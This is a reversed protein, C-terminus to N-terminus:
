SCSPRSMDDDHPARAWTRDGRESSGANRRPQSCKRRSVTLRHSTASFPHRTSARDLRIRERTRAIWSFSSACISAATSRSPRERCIERGERERDPCYHEQELAGAAPRLSAAPARAPAAPSTSRTAINSRFTWTSRPVPKVHETARHQERDDQHDNGDRNPTEEEVRNERVRHRLRPPRLDPWGDALRPASGDSQRSRFTGRRAARM